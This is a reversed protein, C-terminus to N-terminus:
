LLSSPAKAASNKTQLLMGILDGTGPREINIIDAGMDGFIQLAFPGQAFHTFGLIKVGNLAANM